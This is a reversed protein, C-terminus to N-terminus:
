STYYITNYFMFYACGSGAPNPIMGALDDKNTTMFYPVYFWIDVYNDYMAKTIKQFNSIIASNNLATAAGTAWGIVTSNSYASMGLYGPTTIATVYDISATYDESYFSLGFPYQVTGNGPTTFIVSSYEQFTLGQPSTGIGIEQLESQVIQAVDMETPSDTNFLFPVSPFQKGNGNLVTGNPLNLRYGAQELLQIAKAPDYSYPQLGPTSENYFPFGPPVPGIWQTGLGNFVDQIISKYDIALSVAERVRIDQFPAFSYPDMYILYAGQASGFAPSLITANVGPIKSVVSYQSAPALIMQAFGSKLDLIMNSVPKYFISITALNAPQQAYNLEDSPLGDGWYNPKKVLTVSQGQEWSELMYFGTGLAHTDMWNNPTDSTVGGNAEVVEPDLAAAQPTTLTALFASYPAYGNTGYGLHFVVERPNIVQVSQNPYGMFSINEQSPNAYDISNVTGATINLSGGNTLALNQSIIFSPAQNIVLNRYISFWMDYATFPDGNSFKVGQRLSFTYNMGDPTVTWNDALVPVYTTYNVGNPAVLAQYVQQIVEWGSTQFSVGPDL